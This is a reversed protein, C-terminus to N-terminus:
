ELAKVNDSITLNIQTINVEKRIRLWIYRIGLVTTRITNGAKLKLAAGKKPPRILSRIDTIPSFFTNPRLLIQFYRFAGANKDSSNGIIWKTIKPKQNQKEM